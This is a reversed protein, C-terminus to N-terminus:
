VNNGRDKGLGSEGIVVRSAVRTRLYRGFSKILLPNVDNPMTKGTNFLSSRREKKKQMPANQASATQYRRRRKPTIHTHGQSIETEGKKGRKAVLECIPYPLAAYSSHVCFEDDYRHLIYCATRVTTLGKCGSIHLSNAVSSLSPNKGEVTDVPCSLTSQM